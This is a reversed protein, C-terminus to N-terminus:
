ANCDTIADHSPMADRREDLKARIVDLVAPLAAYSFATDAPLEFLSDNAAACCGGYGVYIKRGDPVYKAFLVNLTDIKAGCYPCTFGDIVEIRATFSKYDM